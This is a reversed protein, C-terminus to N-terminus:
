CPLAPDEVVPVDRPAQVMRGRLRVEPRDEVALVPVGAPHLEANVGGAEVRTVVGVEDVLEDALVGRTPEVGGFADGAARPLGQHESGLVLPEPALRPPAEVQHVRVGALGVHHRTEGLRERPGPREVERCVDGRDVLLEERLQDGLV